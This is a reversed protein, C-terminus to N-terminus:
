FTFGLKGMDAAFDSILQPLRRKLAGEDRLQDLSAEPWIASDRAAEVDVEKGDSISGELPVKVLRPNLEPKIRQVMEEVKLQEKANSSELNENGQPNTYMTGSEYVQVEEEEKGINCMVKIVYASYEGKRLGHCDKDSAHYQTNAIYHLPGESTMWHWKSLYAFDPLNHKIFKTFVGCAILSHGSYNKGGKHVAATISFSNHSNGGEDDYRLNLIIDVLGYEKTQRTFRFEKKQERALVSKKM